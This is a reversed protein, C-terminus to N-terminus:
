RGTGRHTARQADDTDIWGRCDGPQVSRVQEDPADCQALGDPIFSSGIFGAGGTVLIMRIVENNGTWRTPERTRRNAFAALGAM